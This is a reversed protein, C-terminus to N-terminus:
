QSIRYFLKKISSDIGSVVGSILVSTASKASKLAEAIQYGFEKATNPPL